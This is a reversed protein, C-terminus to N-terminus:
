ARSRNLRKRLEKRAQRTDEAPKGAELIATYHDATFRYENGLRTHPYTGAKAKRQVTKPHQQLLTAIDAVTMTPAPETM